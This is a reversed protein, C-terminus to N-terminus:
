AIVLAHVDFLFNYSGIVRISPRWKNPGPSDNDGAFACAVPFTRLPDPCGFINQNIFIMRRMRLRHLRTSNLIFSQEIKIQFRSQIYSKSSLNLKKKFEIPHNQNQFILTSFPKSVIEIITEIVIEFWLNM